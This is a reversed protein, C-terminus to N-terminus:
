ENSRPFVIVDPVKMTSVRYTVRGSGTEKLVMTKGNM